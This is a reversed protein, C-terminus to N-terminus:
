VYFTHISKSETFVWRLKEPWNGISFWSWRTQSWSKVSRRSRTMFRGPLHSLILQGTFNSKFGTPFWQGTFNLYQFRYYVMPCHERSLAVFASEARLNEAQSSILLKLLSFEIIEIFVKQLSHNSACRFWRAGTMGCISRRPLTQLAPLERCHTWFIHYGNSCFYEGKGRWLWCHFDGELQQRVSPLSQFIPAGAIPAWHKQKLSFPLCFM